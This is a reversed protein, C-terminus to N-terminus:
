SEIVGIINHFCSLFKNNFGEVKFIITRSKTKCNSCPYICPPYINTIIAKYEKIGYQEKIIMKQGIEYKIIYSEKELYEEIINSSEM